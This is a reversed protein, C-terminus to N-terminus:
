GGRAKNQLYAMIGPFGENNYLTTLEARQLALDSVGDVLVTVIRWQGGTNQLIYDFTVKSGDVRVLHSRVTVRRGLDELLTAPDFTVGEMSTFRSAYAATSARRFAETFRTREDEDLDKWFRGGVLRAITAFDHSAAIVPELQRFRSKFDPKDDHGGVELLTRHLTDIVQLPNDPGPQEAAMCAWSGSILLALMVPHLCALIGNKSRFTQRM